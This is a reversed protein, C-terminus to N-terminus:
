GRTFTVYSHFIVMSNIPVDVIEVPGHSGTRLSHIDVLPYIGNVDWQIGIFDWQIVVFDWKDM